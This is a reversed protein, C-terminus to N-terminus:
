NGLAQKKRALETIEQLVRYPWAPGQLDTIRYGHWLRRRAIALIRADMERPSSFEEIKIRSLGGIRGWYNALAYNSFFTRQMVTTFARNANVAPDILEFRIYLKDFWEDKLLLSVFERTGPLTSDFDIEDVHFWRANKSLSHNNKGKIECEYGALVVQQMVHEYEWFNTHLYPLCRLPSIELGIEERIERILAQEPTEGFDIKGGPLEWKGHLGVVGPAQRMSLLIEKGGRGRICACVVTVIKHPKEMNTVQHRM